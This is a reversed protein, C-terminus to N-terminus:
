RAEWATPEAGRGGPSSRGRGSRKAFLLRGPGGGADHPLAEPPFAGNGTGSSLAGRISEPEVAVSGQQHAWVLFTQVAGLLHVHSVGKRRTALLMARFAILDDVTLAGLPTRGLDARVATLHQRYRRQTPSDLGSALLFAEVAVTWAAEAAGAIPPPGHRRHARASWGRLTSRIVEADVALAGQARAWLLFARVGILVAVQTSPGRGDKLLGARYAVLDSVTIEALSKGAMAPAHTMEVLARLFEHRTSSALRRAALFRDITAMWGGDATEVGSAMGQQGRAGFGLAEDIARDELRHEGRAGTWRLFLRLAYLESIGPVGGEKSGGHYAALAEATLEVLRPLGLQAGAEALARALVERGHAERGSAAVFADVAAMWAAGTGDGARLLEVLPPGRRRPRPPSRPPSAPEAGVLLRLQALARNTTTRISSAALGMARAAEGPSLGQRFRLELIKRNAPSLRRGAKELDALLDRREQRRDATPGPAWDELQVYREEHAVRVRWYLICRKELTSLFWGRPARIESWKSVALLLAEQLLDEADDPPIRYRYFCFRVRERLEDCLRPLEEEISLSTTV